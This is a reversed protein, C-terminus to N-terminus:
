RRGGDARATRRLAARIRRSPEFALPAQASGAPDGRAAEDDAGQHAPGARGIPGAAAPSVAAPLVRLGNVHVVLRAVEHGIARRLAHRVASDVQRGVEAVPLGHAVTIYIDIGIGGDLALDIGRPPLGLMRLVRRLRDRDAFGTVGYSGLVAGRIVDLLARRTVITRGPISPEPV